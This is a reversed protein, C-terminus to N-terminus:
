HHACGRFVFQVRVLAAIGARCCFIWPKKSKNKSAAGWRSYKKWNKSSLVLAANALAANSVRRHNYHPVRFTRFQEERGGRGECLLVLVKGLVRGFVKGLVGRLVKGLVGGRAQVEGLVDVLVKEPEPNPVETGSFDKLRNNKPSLRWLNFYGSFRSFYGQFPWNERTKCHM